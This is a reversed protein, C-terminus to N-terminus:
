YPGAGRTDIPLQDRDSKTAKLLRAIHKHGPADPRGFLRSAITSFDYGSSPWGRRWGEKRLTQIDDPDLETFVSLNLNSFSTAAM